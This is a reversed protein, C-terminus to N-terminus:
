PGLPFEEFKLAWILSVISCSTDGCMCQNVVIACNSCCINNCMCYGTGSYTAPLPYSICHLHTSAHLTTTEGCYLRKEFGKERDWNWMVLHWYFFVKLTCIIPSQLRLVCPTYDHMIWRIAWVNGPLCINCTYHWVLRLVICHVINILCFYCAAYVIDSACYFNFPVCVDRYLPVAHVTLYVSRFLGCYWTPLLSM